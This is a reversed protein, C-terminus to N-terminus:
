SSLKNKNYKHKIEISRVSGHLLARNLYFYNGSLFNSLNSNLYLKNNDENLFLYDILNQRDACEVQEENVTNSSVSSRDDPKKTTSRRDRRRRRLDNSSGSYSSRASNSDSDSSNDSDNADDGSEGSESSESIENDFSLIYFDNTTSEGRKKGSKGTKGGTKARNSSSTNRRRKSSSAGGTTGVGGMTGAKESSLSNTEFDGMFSDNDQQNERSFINM